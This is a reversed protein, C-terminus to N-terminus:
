RSVRWLDGKEIKRTARRNVLLNLQDQDLGQNELAMTQQTRMVAGIAVERARYQVREELSQRPVFGYVFDCGLEEAVRRMTELKATEAMESQELRTVTSIEVGLRAALDQSRMGLAERIARIWGGAPRELVVKAQQLSKLDADIAARAQASIDPNLKRPM